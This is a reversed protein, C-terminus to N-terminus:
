KIRRLYFHNETQGFNQYLTQYRIWIATKCIIFLILFKFSKTNDNETKEQERSFLM